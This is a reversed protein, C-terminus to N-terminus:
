TFCRLAPASRLAADGLRVPPALPPPCPGPHVSLAAPTMGDIRAAQGLTAPQVRQLKQRLEASLSPLAAYDLGDPLCLQEEKRLTRIEEDQRGLYGAYLADAELAEVAHSPIAGLEPWVRCAGAFGIEPM